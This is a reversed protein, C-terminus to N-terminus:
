CTASMSWANRGDTVNTITIVYHLLFHFDACLLIPEFGFVTDQSGAASASRSRGILIHDRIIVVAFNALNKYTTARDNGIYHAWECSSIGIWQLVGTCLIFTTSDTNM